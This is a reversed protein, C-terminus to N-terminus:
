QPTPPLLYRTNLNSHCDKQTPSLPFFPWNINCWSQCRGSNLYQGCKHWVESWESYGGTMLYSSGCKESGSIQPCDCPSINCQHGAHGPLVWPSYGDGPRPLSRPPILHDLQCLHIYPATRVQWLKKRLSLLSMVPFPSLPANSSLTLLSEICLSPSCFM